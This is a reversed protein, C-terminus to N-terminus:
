PGHDRELVSALHEALMRIDGRVDENLMRAERRGEDIRASLGAELDDFRRDVAEFRRDIADFREDVAEFRRDIADFREDVASFGARIEDHTALTPLIQEIAGVRVNLNKVEDTLGHLRGDMATVRSDLGTVRNAIDRLLIEMESPTMLVEPHGAALLASLLV